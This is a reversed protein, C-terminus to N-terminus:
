TTSEVDRRWTVVASEPSYQSRWTSMREVTGKNRTGFFIYSKYRKLLSTDIVEM